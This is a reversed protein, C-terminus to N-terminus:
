VPSTLLVRTSSLLAAPVRYLEKSGALRFLTPALSGQGGAMTVRGQERLAKRGLEGDVKLVMELWLARRAESEFHNRGKNEWHQRPKQNSCM